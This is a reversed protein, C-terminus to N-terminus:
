KDDDLHADVWADYKEDARSMKEDYQYDFYDCDLCAEGSELCEEIRPCDESL